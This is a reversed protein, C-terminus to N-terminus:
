PESQLIYVTGDLSTETVKTLNGGTYGHKRLYDTDEDSWDEIVTSSIGVGCEDTVRGNANLKGVIADLVESDISQLWENNTQTM